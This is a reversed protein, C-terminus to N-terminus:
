TRSFLYHRQGNFVTFVCIFIHVDVIGRDKFLRETLFSENEKKKNYCIIVGNVLMQVLNVRYGREEPTFRRTIMM